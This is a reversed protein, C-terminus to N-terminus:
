LAPCRGGFFATAICRQITLPQGLLVSPRALLSDLVADVATPGWYHTM